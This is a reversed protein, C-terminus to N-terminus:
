QSPQPTELGFSPLLGPLLGGGTEDVQDAPPAEVTVPEDWKSLTITAKIKATGMAADLAVKAIKMTDKEVWVDLTADASGSPLAGVSPLPVASGLAGSVEGALTATPITLQVHYCDKSGCKEDALKKPAVKPDDLAKRIDALM